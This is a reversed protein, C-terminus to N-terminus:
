KREHQHCSGRSAIRRTGAAVDAALHPWYNKSRLAYPMRNQGPHGAIVPNHCLCFFRARLTRPVVVQVIDPDFPHKRKLVGQHDEFFASDRFESKRALVTRCFEDM